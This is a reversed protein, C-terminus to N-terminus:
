TEWYCPSGVILVDAWQIKEFRASRMTKPYSVPRGAAALWADQVPAYRCNISPYQTGSRRWTHSSRRGHHGANQSILGQCRPSGNLILIKM